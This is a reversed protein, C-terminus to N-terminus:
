EKNIGIDEFLKSMESLGRSPNAKNFLPLKKSNSLAKAIHFKLKLYIDNDQKTFFKESKAYDPIHKKLQKGAGDCNSFQQATYKFHILFWFEICPQNIIVIVNKYKNEIIRKYELFIDIAKQQGKKAQLSESLIVDLDIIWYVKDYSNALEIVKSYLDSLKKRQPIEPKIDVKILKENRKLMQFYWFETEGDVVIAFKPKAKLPIPRKNRM